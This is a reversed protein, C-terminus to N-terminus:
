TANPGGAARDADETWTAALVPVGSLDRIIRDLDDFLLGRVGPLFYARERWESASLPFPIRLGMDRAQQAVQGARRFDTCVIYAQHEAALRILETTKGGQRSRIIIETV